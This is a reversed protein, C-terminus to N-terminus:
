ADRTQTIKVHHHRGTMLYADKKVEIAHCLLKKEDKSTLCDDGCDVGM